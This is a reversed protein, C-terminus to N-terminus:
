LLHGTIQANLPPSFAKVLCLCLSPRGQLLFLIPLHPRNETHSSDPTPRDPQAQDAPGFGVPRPHWSLVGPSQGPPGSLNQIFSAELLAAKLPQEPSHSSFPNSPSAPPLSTPSSAAPAMCARLHQPCSPLLCSRSTSSHQGRGARPSSSLWPGLGPRIGGPQRPRM